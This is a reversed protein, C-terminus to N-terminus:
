WIVLLLVLCQLLFILVHSSQVNVATLTNPTGDLVFLLWVAKTKNKGSKWTEHSVALTATSAKEPRSVFVLVHVLHVRTCELRSVM